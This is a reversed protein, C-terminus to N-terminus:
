ITSRSQKNNRFLLKYNYYKPIFLQNIKFAKIQEFNIKLEKLYDFNEAHGLECLISSYKLKSKNLKDFTSIYDNKLNYQQIIEIPVQISFIREFIETKSLLEFFPSFIHIALKKKNYKELLDNKYKEFYNIVYEQIINIDIKNILLDKEFSKILFDKPFSIDKNPNDIDNYFFYNELHIGYKLFYKEQYDFIKINLKNQFFKSHAFIKYKINSDGIYNFLNKLVYISLIKDM